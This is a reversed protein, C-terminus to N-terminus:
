VKKNSKIHFKTPLVRRQCLEQEWQSTSKEIALSKNGIPGNSWYVKSDSLRWHQDLLKSLFVPYNECLVGIDKADKCL